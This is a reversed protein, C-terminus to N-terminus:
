KGLEAHVLGVWYAIGFPLAADNFDYGPNHLSAGHPGKTGNGLLMFCGPKRDLFHAFDESFGVPACRDDVRAGPVSAAAAVAHDTEPATNVSPRFERRYTLTAQAGRAGAVGAVLGSILREIAESVAARYGRADGRLTVTSPIVNWAGDTAIDTISVVAHDRPSIARGVISQAALVLEAAPLMPDITREPASSHGGRGEIRIDFRDEFATFVGPGTAFSGLPMGPMNHLGYIADTPFREFLGAEIMAQAGRGNEEDPQFIFHVTGDFDSQQALHLAAGILMAMHGDHGCGHFKGPILSRHDLNTAETIPLADLEARLAIARTATGCRLTAVIGGGVDTEVTLGGARLREAVVSATSEVEFGTEPKRHLERRLAIVSALEHDLASQANM